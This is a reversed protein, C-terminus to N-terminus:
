AGSCTSELMQFLEQQVTQDPPGNNELKVLIGQDRYYDALPKTQEHYLLLRRQLTEQTDDSRRVVEGGCRDCVGEQKPRTVSTNYPQGCGRCIMRSLAREVLIAEDVDLAIVADLKVGTAALIGDLALAQAITRPFGDLIFGNQGPGEALTKEVLKITLEDPVLAGQEVYSRVQQGLPSDDALEKRFLDGSSIHPLSFTDSLIKSWTGKGSGPAGTLILRKVM